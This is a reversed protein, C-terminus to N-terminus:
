GHDAAPGPEFFVGYRTGRFRKALEEYNEVVERVPRTRLRVSKTTLEREQVGLFAQVRALTHKREGVLQEYSLELVEHKRLMARFSAQREETRRFDEECEEPSLRVRAQEPRADGLHAEYVGHVHVALHQSLYRELLNDRTLHLIRIDTDRSIEELVMAYQPLLLEEYKGKFGVARRGGAQWVFEWLFAVPDRDRRGLLVLELPPDVRYNVGYFDLPGSPALVEGHACVDPHSKLYRSLMTSGTRAPCTLLYRM